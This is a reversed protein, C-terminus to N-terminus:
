EPYEPSCACACITDPMEPGDCVEWGEPTSGICTNYRMVEYPPGRFLVYTVTGECAVWSPGCGDGIYINQICAGRVGGFSCTLPEAVDVITEWTCFAPGQGEGRWLDPAAECATQHSYRSCDFLVPDLCLPTVERCQPCCAVDDVCDCGRTSALLCVTGDGCSEGPVDCTPQCGAPPLVTGDHGDGCAPAVLVQGMPCFEGGGSTEAGSSESASSESTSGSASSEGTSGSAPTSPMDGCGMLAALFTLRRLRWVM